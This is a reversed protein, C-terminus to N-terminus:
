SLHGFNVCEYFKYQHLLRQYVFRLKCRSSQVGGTDGRLTTDLFSFYFNKSQLKLLQKGVFDTFLVLVILMCTSSVLYFLVSFSFLMQNIVNQLWAQALLLEDDRQNNLIERFAIQSFCFDYYSIKSFCLCITGCMLVQQM